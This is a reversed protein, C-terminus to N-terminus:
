PATRSTAAPQRPPALEAAIDTMAEVGGARYAEWDRAQPGGPLSKDAWRASLMAAADVAQAPETEDAILRALEGLAAVKGEYFKAAPHSRGVKALTCASVDGLLRSWEATTLLRAAM